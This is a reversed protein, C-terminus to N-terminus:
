LKILWRKPEKRGGAGLDGIPSKLKDKAEEAEEAGKAEEV